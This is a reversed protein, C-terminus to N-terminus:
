EFFYEDTKTLLWKAREQAIINGLRLDQDQNVNMGSVYELKRIFESKYQFRKDINEAFSVFPSADMSDSSSVALEYYKTVSDILTEDTLDSRTATYSIMASYLTGRNWGPDLSMAAKLLKGVRPLQILEFPNGRSARIACGYAAALWYLEYINDHEFKIKNDKESLWLEFEPYKETLIVTGIEIADKLLSYADGARELGQHYDEAFLRDAEELIFGYAFKVELKLLKRREPYTLSDKERFSAIKKEFYYTSILQPHDVIIRRPVCGATFFIILICPLKGKFGM